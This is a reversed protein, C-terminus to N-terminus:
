TPRGYVKIEVNFAIFLESKSFFNRFPQQRTGPTRGEYMNAYEIFLSVPM